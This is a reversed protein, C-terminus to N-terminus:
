PIWELFKRDWRGDTRQAVHGARQLKLKSIRYIAIRFKFKNTKPAKKNTMTQRTEHEHM